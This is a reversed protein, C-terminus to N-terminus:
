LEVIAPRRLDGVEITPLGPTETVVEIGDASVLATDESKAGGAISPNWAVACTPPLRTEEGPTAFVERGKYKQYQLFDVIPGVHRRDLVPNAIFFRLVTLWFDEHGFEQGLMKLDEGEEARPRLDDLRCQPDHLRLGWRAPVTQGREAMSEVSLCLAATTQDVPVDPM